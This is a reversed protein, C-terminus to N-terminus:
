HGDFVRAVEQTIPNLTPAGTHRLHWLATEAVAFDGDTALVALVQPAPHEESLLAMRVWALPHHAILWACERCRRQGVTATAWGPGGPNPSDAGLHNRCPRWCRACKGPHCLANHPRPGPRWSRCRQHRRPRQSIILDDMGYVM